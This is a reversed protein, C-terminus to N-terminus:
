RKRRSYTMHMRRVRARKVIQRVLREAEVSGLMVELYEVIAQRTAAIDWRRELATRPRQLAEEQWATLQVGCARAFGAIERASAIHSM